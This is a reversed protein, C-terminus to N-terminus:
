NKAAKEMAEDVMMAAEELMMMDLLFGTLEDSTIESDIIVTEGTVPNEGILRLIM